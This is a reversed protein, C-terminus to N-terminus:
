RGSSISMSAIFLLNESENCSVAYGSTRACAMVARLRM